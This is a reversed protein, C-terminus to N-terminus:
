MVCFLGGLFNFPEYKGHLATAAVRKHSNRMDSGVWNSKIMAGFIVLRVHHVM